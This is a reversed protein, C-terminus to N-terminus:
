ASAPACSGRHDRVAPGHQHQSTGDAGVLGVEKLLLALELLDSVGQAKSIISTVIAAAGYRAKIKAAARFMALEGATEEGYVHFPLLLPRPSVLEKRLM